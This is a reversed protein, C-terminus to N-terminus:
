ASNSTSTRRRRRESYSRSPMPDRAPKRRSSKTSFTSAPKPEQRPPPSFRAPNGGRTKVKSEPWERLKQTRRFIHMPCCLDGNSEKGRAKLNKVFQGSNQRASKGNSGM